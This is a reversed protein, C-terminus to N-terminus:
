RVRGMQYIQISEDASLTRLARSLRSKVTGPPAGVAEAIERESLHMFYRLVVVERHQHSLRGLARAVADRLDTLETSDEGATEPLTETAREGNWRRRRSSRVVNLHIRYVYADQHQAQVVRNWALFAKILTTQALDEAEHLSSGLMMAAHVLPRWRAAAYEEFDTSVESM